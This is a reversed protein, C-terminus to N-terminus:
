QLRDFGMSAGKWVRGFGGIQDFVWGFGNSAKWIDKCVWREPGFKQKFGGKRDFHHRQRNFGISAWRLAGKWVRGFGGM